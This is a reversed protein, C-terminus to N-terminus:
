QNVHTYVYLLMGTCIYHPQKTEKLTHTHEGHPVQCFSAAGKGQPNESPGTWTGSSSCIHAIQGVHGGKLLDSQSPNLVSLLAREEQEVEQQLQDVYKSAETTAPYLNQDYLHSPQKTCRQSYRM